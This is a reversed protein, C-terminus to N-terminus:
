LVPSHQMTLTMEDNWPDFRQAIIRWKKNLYSYLRIHPFTLNTTMKFIGTLKKRPQFLYPYETVKTSRVETGILHDNMRYFSIPMTISSSVKPTTAEATGAPAIIDSDSAPAYRISAYPESDELVNLHISYIFILAQSPLAEHEANYRYKFDVQLYDDHTNDFDTYVYYPAIGTDSLHNLLGDTAAKMQYTFGFKQNPIKKMYLRLSFLNTGQNSPLSMLVGIHDDYAVCQKAIIIKDNSDFTLVSIGTNIENLYEVPILNCFSFKEINATFQDIYPIISPMIQVGNDIPVYTRNFDFDSSLNEGEYHVEIGTDPNITQVSSNKDAPDFYTTLAIATPAITSDGRHNIDGIYGVAYYSYTDEYDFATFVLATPTDHCIWGFAKCIAELIFSYTEGTMVKNYPRVNMSHHFNENWPTVVLSWIKEGLTVEGYQTTKGTNKPYYLREYNESGLITDLLSGLTVSTPNIYRTNSFNKHTFLGLPSIVPLEIVKPVPILENNFDQVQIYGNFVLDSGYYVEVYRDFPASPYIENLSQTSSSDYEDMLRIYGTRYRLVTNLLDSDEDEEYFFPDAAGAVTQVFSGTYNRMYIDIRCTTEKLSKFSCTWRINGQTWAM